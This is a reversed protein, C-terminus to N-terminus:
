VVGGENGELSIVGESELRLAVEVIEMQAAEVDSLKVSGLIEMDERIRDGARKSMGSFIHERLSDSATKLAVTLRESPVAELVSRIGRADLVSLDEFSYMARRIEGALDENDEQLVTLLLEGTERGMRRVLAASQAVGNVSVSAEAMTPPLEAGLAEAVEELLGAPVDRMNGLRELVVPRTAEPMQELVAAAKETDLQSLIAAAIQPHEGELVAAIGQPTSTSLREMASQPADVFIEQTKAEGLAKTAIRRLYRVGGRPVAVAEQATDIFEKYVHDLAVVPVSRMMSAVERLRRVDAPDLEALIPTAATEDLSLLMLVAKEAGTLEM